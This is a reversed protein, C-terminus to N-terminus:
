MAIGILLVRMIRQVFLMIALCAFQQCLRQESRRDDCYRFGDDAYLRRRKRRDRSRLQRSQENQM